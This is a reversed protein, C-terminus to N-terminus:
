TVHPSVNEEEDEPPDGSRGPGGAATEPARRPVGSLLEELSPAAAASMM